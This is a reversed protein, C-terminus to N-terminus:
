TNVRLSSEPNILLCFGEKGRFNSNRVVGSILSSCYRQRCIGIAIASANIIRQSNDILISLLWCTSKGVIWFAGM